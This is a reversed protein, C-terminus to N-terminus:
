YAAAIISISVGAPVCINAQDGRDGVQRAMGHRTKLAAM